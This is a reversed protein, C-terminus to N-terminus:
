GRARRLRPPNGVLGVRAWGPGGCAPDAPVARPPGVGHRASPRRRNSDRAPRRDSPLRRQPPAHAAGGCGGVAAATPACRSGPRAPPHPPAGGAWLSATDTPPLWRPAARTRRRSRPARASSCFVMSHRHAAACARGVGPTPRPATVQPGLAPPPPAAVGSCRWTRETAKVPFFPSSGLIQCRQYASVSDNRRVTHGCIPARHRQSHGRGGLGGATIGGM